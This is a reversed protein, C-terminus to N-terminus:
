VVIGVVYYLNAGIYLCGPALLARCHLGFLSVSLIISPFHLSQESKKVPSSRITESCPEATWYIKVNFPGSEHDM